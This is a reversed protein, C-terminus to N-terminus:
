QLFSIKDWKDTNLVCFEIIIVFDKNKEQLVVFKTVIVSLVESSVSAVCNAPLTLAAAGSKSEIENRQTRICSEPLHHASTIMQVSNLQM